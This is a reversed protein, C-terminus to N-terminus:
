ISALALKDGFKKRIFDRGAPTFLTYVGSWKGNTYEKIQAYGKDTMGSYPLIIGRPSRYCFGVEILLSSFTREGMHLEKATQRINTLLNTEM